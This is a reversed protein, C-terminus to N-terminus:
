VDPSRGDRKKGKQAVSAQFGAAGEVISTGHPPMAVRKIM